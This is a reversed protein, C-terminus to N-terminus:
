RANVRFEATITREPSVRLVLPSLAAIGDLGNAGALIREALVAFVLDADDPSSISDLTLTASRGDRARVRASRTGHVVTLRVGCRHEFVAASWTEEDSPLMAPSIRIIDAMGSLRQDLEEDSVILMGRHSLGPPSTRGAVTAPARRVSLEGPGGDTVPEVYTWLSSPPADDVKPSEVALVVPDAAPPPVGIIRYVEERILQLSRGPASSVWTTAVAHTRHRLREALDLQPRIPALPDLAPAVEFLAGLGSGPDVASRSSKELLVPRGAAAAYIGVSGHDSLVWDSAIVAARWGGEPPLLILGARLADFLWSKIQLESHAAWVNPHLVLAIRFEDHPLETLLRLVLLPDLGFLSNEQWTSNVTILRQGPRLHLAHRYHLRRPLSALLRDYCPDGALFARPLADRCGEALRHFQETHSLGIATPVLHADHKLTDDSLGFVRTGPGQDTFKNYGNGHPLRVIPSKLEHLNDGLSATIVVDFELSAAQQWALCLFGRRAMYAGVGNSFMADSTQTCFLQVRRDHFIPLVDTLRTAATVSHIVILVRLSTRATRWGPQVASLHRVAPPPDAM